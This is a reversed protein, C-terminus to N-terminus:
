YADFRDAMKDRWEDIEEESYGATKLVEAQKKFGQEYLEYDGRTLGFEMDKNGDEWKKDLDTNPEPYYDDIDELNQSFDEYLKLHKM